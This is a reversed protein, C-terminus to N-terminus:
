RGDAMQWRGNEQRGGVQVERRGVDMIGGGQERCGDVM